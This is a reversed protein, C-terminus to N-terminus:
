KLNRPKPKDSMNGLDIHSFGHFLVLLLKAADHVTFGESLELQDTPLTPKRLRM